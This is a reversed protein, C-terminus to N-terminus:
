LSLLQGNVGSLPIIKIEGTELHKCRAEYIPTYILKHETVEFVEEGIKGIDKPRTAIRERISHIIKDPPITLPRVRDRNEKLTEQSDAEPSASPLRAPDIEHGTRNIAIHAADEYVVREQADVMIEKHPKRLIGEEVKPTFKQGLIIVESVEQDIKISYTNKQYYDLFYTARAVVFPEYFLQISQCEIEEQKPKLFGWKVFFGTKEKQVIERIDEHNVNVRHVILKMEEVKEQEIERSSTM